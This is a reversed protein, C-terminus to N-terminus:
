SPSKLLFYIYDDIHIKPEKLLNEFIGHDKEM